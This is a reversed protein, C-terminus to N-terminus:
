GDQRGRKELGRRNMTYRYDMTTTEKGCRDCGTKRLGGDCRMVYEPEMELACAPCLRARCIEWIGAKM